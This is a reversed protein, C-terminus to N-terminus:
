GNGLESVPNAIDADLRHIRQANITVVGYEGEVSGTIRYPGPGKLLYGCKSYTRPFVVCELDGTQDEGTLFIM